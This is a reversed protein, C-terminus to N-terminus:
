VHTISHWSENNVHSWVNSSCQVQEHTNPAIQIVLLINQEIQLHQNWTAYIPCHAIKLNSQTISFNTKVIRWWRFPQFKYNNVHFKSNLFFNLCIYLVCTCNTPIIKQHFDLPEMNINYPWCVMIHVHQNKVNHHCTWIWINLCKGNTM